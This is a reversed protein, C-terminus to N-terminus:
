TADAVLKEADPITLQGSLLKPLLLDRIKTLSMVEQDVVELSNHIGALFNRMSAILDAPPVVVVHNRLIETKLNLFVSGNGQQLLQTRVILFLQYLYFDDFHKVEPFHLWGDHICADLMLFKPLGPTASNSLILAGASLLTTKKLGEPKIFQKTSNLFRTTSATADSIKVWPLGEDALFDHIPRPSGGRKVSVFNGLPEVSWGLPVWGMGDRFEFGDPFERRIEEPLAKRADGLAQRAAARAKFPEPIDNGAALANDIVPDFDVFWSKFLAQAMAELTENTQRNLEIRDDLAGLIHAIAIQEALPPLYIDVSSLNAQSLNSITTGTAIRAFQERSQPSQFNYFLFLPSAEAKPDVRFRITFGSFITGDPPEGVIASQGSGSRKLSSRAFLIDDKQLLFSSINRLVGAQIADLNETVAFRGRFLSKVSVVPHDKGYDKASFNAGNRLSGLKGLTTHEWEGGM